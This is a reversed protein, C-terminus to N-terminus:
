NVENTQHDKIGPEVRKLVPFLFMLICCIFDVGALAYFVTKYSNSIDFVWGAAVPGFLGGLGVCIYYIGLCVSFRRCGVYRRILVIAVAYFVGTFLGLLFSAVSLCVYNDANLLLVSAGAGAACISCVIEASLNYSILLGNVLRGLLSGIGNLSLLFAASSLAVGISEARPIIFLGAGYYPIASIFALLCLMSFRYSKRFVGLGLGSWMKRIPNLKLKWARFSTNHTTSSVNSQGEEINTHTESHNMTADSDDSSSESELAMEVADNAHVIQFDVDTRETLKDISRHDLGSKRDTRPKRFLTGFVVMNAVIASTVLLAGRLGFYDLLIQILPPAAMKGTGSGSCALANATTYGNKFHLAVAVLATNKAMGLGVGTVVATLYLQSINQVWVSGLMGLTTLVGGIIGVLKCGCRQIMVGGVFMSFSCVCTMISSIAATEKANTDFESRWSLYFVSGSSQCFAILALSMHAAVVVVIGWRSPQDQVRAAVSTKGSGVM